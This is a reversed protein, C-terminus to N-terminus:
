WLFRLIPILIGASFGTWWGIMKDHDSYLAYGPYKDSMPVFSFLMSIFWGVFVIFWLGAMMPTKPMGGIMQDRVAMITQNIM